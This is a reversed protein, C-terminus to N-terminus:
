GEGVGGMNDLWYDLLNLNRDLSDGVTDLLCSALVRKSEGHGAQLLSLSAALTSSIFFSSRSSRDEGISTEGKGIAITKTGIAIAEGVGISSRSESNSLWLNGLHLNGLVDVLSDVLLHLQSRKTVIAQSKSNRTSLFIASASYLLLDTLFSQNSKTRRIEIELM